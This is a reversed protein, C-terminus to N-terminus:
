NQYATNKDPVFIYINKQASFNAEIDKKYVITNFTTMHYLTQHFHLLLRTIKSYSSRYACHNFHQAVFRFTAAEIGAPTM